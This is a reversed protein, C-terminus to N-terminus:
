SCAAKPVREPVNQGISFKKWELTWPPRCHLRDLLENSRFTIQVSAQPMAMALLIWIDRQACSTERRDNRRHIPNPRYSVMSLRPIKEQHYTPTSRNSTWADGWSLLQEHYPLFDPRTQMLEQDSHASASFTQKPHRESRLKVPLAKERNAANPQLTSPARKPLSLYQYSWVTEGFWCM